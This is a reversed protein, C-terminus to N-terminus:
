LVLRYWKEKEMKEKEMAKEKDKADMQPKQKEGYTTVKGQLKGDKYTAESKLSGDPYFTEQKGDFQGNKYMISMKKNGKEDFWVTEGNRQGDKYESVELNGGQEYCLIQRGDLQGNKYTHLKSLRGGRFWESVQGDLVDDKYEAKKTISGTNDIEVYIGNRKGNEYNVIKKPLYTTKNFYEMWTGVKKGNLVTGEISCDGAKTTFKGDPAKSVDVSEVTQAFMPMAFLAM